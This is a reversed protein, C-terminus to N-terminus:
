KSVNTDGNSDGREKLRKEMEEITLGHEKAYNDLMEVGGNDRNKIAKYIELGITVFAVLISCIIAVISQWAQLNELLVPAGSLAAGITGITVNETTTM